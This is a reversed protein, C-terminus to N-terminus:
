RCHKRCINNEAKIGTQSSYTGSGTDFFRPSYVPLIGLANISENRDAIQIFAESVFKAVIGRRVKGIILRMGSNHNVPQYRQVAFLFIDAYSGDDSSHDCYLTEGRGSYKDAVRFVERYFSNENDTTLEGIRKVKSYDPQGNEPVPQLLDGVTEINM